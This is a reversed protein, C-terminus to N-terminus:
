QLAGVLAANTDELAATFKGLRIYAAARNVLIAPQDSQAHSSM